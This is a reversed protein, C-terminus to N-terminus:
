LADQLQRAATISKRGFFELALAEDTLLYDGRGNRRTVRHVTGQRFPEVFEKRYTERFQQYNQQLEPRGSQAFAQEALREADVRMQGLRRALVYDNSALAARRDDGLRRMLSQFDEFTLMDPTTELSQGTAEEVQRKISERSGRVDVGIQAFEDVLQDFQARGEVAGVDDVRFVPSGNLDDALAEMFARQDPLAGQDLNYQPFFGEETARIILDDMQQGGQSLLGPRGQHGGIMAMVDGRDGRLGGQSVIWSSLRQANPNQVFAQKAEMARQLIERAEANNSQPAGAAARLEDMIAPTEGPRDFRPAEDYKRVLEAAVEQFPVEIADNLGLTRALESMQAQRQRSAEQIAGRLESGHDAVDVGDPLSRRVLADEQGEVRVRQAEFMQERDARRQTLTDEVLQRQDGNPGRPGTQQAFEDILQENGRRRNVFGDLDSGSASAEIDAQTRVMSPANTREALTFDPRRGTATEMAREVMAAQEMSLEAQPTAVDNISRAALERARQTRIEPNLQGLAGEVIRASPMRRAGQVALSGATPAGIGGIIEGFLRANPNDPFSEAALEGGVGSGAGATTEVAVATAPRTTVTRVVDDSIQGVMGGSNRLGSAVATGGVLGGGAEGVGRGISRSYSEGRTEPEEPRIYNLSVEGGATLRRKLWDSGMFANERLNQDGPMLELAMSALDVPFGVVNAVGEYVGSTFQLGAGIGDTDVGRGAELAAQENYTRGDSSAAYDDWPNGGADQPPAYDEWPGNM